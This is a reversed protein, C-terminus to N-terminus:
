HNIIYHSKSKKKKKNRVTSTKGDNEINMKELAKLERDLKDNFKNDSHLEITMDNGSRTNNVTNEFREEAKKLAANVEEIKRLSEIKCAKIGKVKTRLSMPVYASRKEIHVPKPAQPFEATPDNPFRFASKKRQIYDDDGKGFTRKM